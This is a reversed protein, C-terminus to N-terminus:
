RESRMASLVEVTSVDQQWGQALEQALRMFKEFADPDPNPTEEIELIQDTSVGIEESSGRTQEDFIIMHKYQLYYLFSGLEEIAEDPLTNVINIVDQKTTPKPMIITM